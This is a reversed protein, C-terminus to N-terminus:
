EGKREVILSVRVSMLHEGEIDSRLPIAEEVYVSLFRLTDYDLRGVPHTPLHSWHLLYTVREARQGLGQTDMRGDALDDMYINVIATSRVTSLEPDIPATLVHVTVSPNIPRSQGQPVRRKPGKDISQVMSRFTVDGNLRHYIASLIHDTNIPQKM